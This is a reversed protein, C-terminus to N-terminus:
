PTMVWKHGKWTNIYYWRTGGPSDWVREPTIQQRTFTLFEQNPEVAGPYPYDTVMTSESIQIPLIYEKVGLARDHEM